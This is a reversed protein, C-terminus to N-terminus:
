GGAYTTDRRIMRLQLWVVTVLIPFFVLSIAAGKGIEGGSLGVAYSLTAILHTMNM